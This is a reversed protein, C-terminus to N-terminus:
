FLLRRKKTSALSGPGTPPKVTKDFHEAMWGPPERALGIVVASGAKKAWRLGARWAREVVSTWRGEFPDDLIVIGGLGCLLGILRIAERDESGLQGWMTEPSIGVERLAEEHGMGEAFHKPGFLRALFGRARGTVVDMVPAGAKFKPQRGLNHRLRHHRRLLERETNDLFVVDLGDIIVQGRRVHELLALKGLISRRAENDPCILGVAEGKRMTLLIPKGGEEAGLLAVLLAGEVEKKLEEMWEPPKKESM